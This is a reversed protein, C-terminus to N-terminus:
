QVDVNEEEFNGTEPACRLRRTWWNKRCLHGRLSGCCLCLATQGFAFPRAQFNAFLKNLEFLGSIPQISHFELASVSLTAVLHAVEHKYCAYSFIDRSGQSTLTITELWRTEKNREKNESTVQWNAQFAIKVLRQRLAIENTECGLTLFHWPALKMFVRLLIIIWWSQLRCRYVFILARPYVHALIRMRLFIKCCKMLTRAFVCRTVSWKRKNIKNEWYLNRSSVKSTQVKTTKMLLSRTLM